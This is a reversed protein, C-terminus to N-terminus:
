KTEGKKKWIAVLAGIYGIFLALSLYGLISGTEAGSNGIVSLLLLFIITVIVTVITKALKTM